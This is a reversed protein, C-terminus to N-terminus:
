LIKRIRHSFPLLLCAPALTPSSPLFYLSASLAKTFRLTPLLVSLSAPLLHRILVLYRVCVCARLSRRLLSSVKLLWSLNLHGVLHLLQGLPVEILLISIVVALVLGIRM